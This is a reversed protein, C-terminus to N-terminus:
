AYRGYCYVDLNGSGGAEFTVSATGPVVWLEDASEITRCAMKSTSGVRIRQVGKATHDLTLTQNNSLSLGTLEITNGGASITLTQITSGSTNKFTFELPTKASGNVTLSVGSIASVGTRSISTPITEVWYPVAYARFVITYTGRSAADGEEPFQVCEVRAQQGSKYNVTLVGGGCAWKKVKDLVTARDAPRYSKENITFAIEIDLSDRKKGTVRSGAGSGLGAASWQDKGAKTRIGQIIIRNDVQDLQAGNLAARRRLIM